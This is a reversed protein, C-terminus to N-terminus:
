PAGALGSDQGQRDAELLDLISEPLHVETRDPEAPEVLRRAPDYILQTAGGAAFAPVM